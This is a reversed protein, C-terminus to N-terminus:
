LTACMMGTTRVALEPSLIKSLTRSIATPAPPSRGKGRFGILRLAFQLHLSHERPSFAPDISNVELVTGSLVCYTGRLHVTNVTAAPSELRELEQGRVGRGEGVRQTRM